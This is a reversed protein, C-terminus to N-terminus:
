EVSAGTGRDEKTAIRSAADLMHGTNAVRVFFVRPPTYGDEEAFETGETNLSVRGWDGVSGTSGRRWGVSV